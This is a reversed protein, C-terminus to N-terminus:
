PDARSKAVARAIAARLKEEVQPTVAAVAPRLFPRAAMRRTGYEIFLAHPSAATIRLRSTEADVAASLAAALGGTPDGPPSGPKSVASSGLARKIAATLDEGVDRLAENAATRAAEPLAALRRKLGALGAPTAGSM